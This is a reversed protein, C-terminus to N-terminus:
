SDAGNAAEPTTAVPRPGTLEATLSFRDRRLRPDPQVAGSLAPARWLKAGELRGPLAAAESSIGILTLRNGEISVKELYTDDPLRRSLEDLVELATPRAARAEDLFATGEVLDQLQQRRAAVGRAGVAQAEVKASFEALATRRNDLMRHGAFAAALLAIAILILNWRQLRSSGRQRAAMPLLNVQLPRGDADAVDVGSLQAGIDSLAALERDLLARPAVVLEADIQGAGRRGVVRADYHVGNAAFPTQRDIEFGAVDRLRTAAAAPLQWQRRLANGAPLLLWRPLDSLRRDLLGDLDAAQLPSPLRALEALEAGRQLFLRLEVGGAQAPAPERSLLLRDQASGLLLRWREPLWALLSERWWRLFGGVGSGYRQLRRTWAAGPAPNGASTNM